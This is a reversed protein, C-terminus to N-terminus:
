ELYGLSRLEAERERDLGVAPTAPRRRQRALAAKRLSGAERGEGARNSRQEPDSAEYLEEGDPGRIYWRGGRIAAMALPLPEVHEAVRRGDPGWRYHHAMAFLVRQADGEPAEGEPAELLPLLSRGDLADPVPAGALELLTPMVDVISVPAAVTAPPRGPLRLLLPVRVLDAHLRGGHHIRGRAVDFGEGHDSVLVVATQEDIGLEVLRDLLRDLAYDFHALEARYLKRLRAFVAPPCAEEGKLCALHAAASRDRAQPLRRTAWPHAGFYDHVSFSQLFLFFPPDDPARADLFALARDFLALGRPSNAAGDRPLPLGALGPDSALTDYRDFGKAFGYEAGLWGGDTFGVTQYGRERLLAALRPAERAITVRGDTAGHRDPYLGTLLSAQAPLTWSATSLAGDFRVSRAALAELAPLLPASPEHLRLASRSLTDVVM